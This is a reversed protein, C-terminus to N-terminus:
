ACEKETSIVPANEGMYGLSRLLNYNIYDAADDKSMGMQIHCDILKNYSYVFRDAHADYKIIAEDLCPPDLIIAVSNAKVMHHLKARM